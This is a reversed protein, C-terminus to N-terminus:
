ELGKKREEFESKDIEGRAYRDKLIDMPTKDRLRQGGGNQNFTRIFLWVVIFLGILGFIWYWGMGGMFGNISHM